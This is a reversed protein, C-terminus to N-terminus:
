IGVPLFSLRTINSYMTIARLIKCKGMEVNQNGNGHMKNGNVDLEREVASRINGNGHSDCPIATKGMGV